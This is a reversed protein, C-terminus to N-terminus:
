PQPVIAPPGVFTAPSKLGESVAPTPAYNRLILYFPGEPAPLWNSAKDLGPNGHQVYLTFSGDRNKKLDDSSGLSYRDIPNASTYGSDADYMSVSWFGPPISKLYSMDGAFNLTYKKAGSLPHGNSDAVGSYYVAEDVTNATLGFQAIIARAVYDAGANGVKPNPLVWGNKTGAIAGVSGMRGAIESAAKKMPQLVLPNARETTWPKGLELGLYAYRPLVAEIQAQPPPNENMAASCLAWFQLPDKFQMKSSAVTPDLEPVAYNYSASESQTRGAYEALSTITIRDLVSKAAALDARDKVFVRPQLEIWRTPADIRSVGAPLSGQWGPGVLAFTGGGYGTARGGAYAFDNTWMDVMEVMYYRGGSNPVRLIAPERGLDVFGFGYLVNVNPSVYGTQRAVAPTAIDAFRWIEGPKSKANPAFAISYRLNYMAVIPLCYTAAEISLAGAWSAVAESQASSLGTHDDAAASLRTCVVTILFAIACAFRNKACSKKCTM